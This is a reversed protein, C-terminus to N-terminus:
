RMEALVYHSAAFPRTHLIARTLSFEKIWRKWMPQIGSSGIPLYRMESVTFGATELMWRIEEGTYERYHIDAETIIKGGEIKPHAMFAQTGWLSHRNRLLRWSNMVTAPNPTTLVLLAGPRAVAGASRLLDVPCNLIHEIVEGALIVDFRREEGGFPDLQNLNSYYFNVGLQRFKQDREPLEWADTATVSYGLRAFLVSIYGVGCGIDLLSAGNPFRRTVDAIMRMVRGRNEPWYENVFWTNGAQSALLEDVAEQIGWTPRDM